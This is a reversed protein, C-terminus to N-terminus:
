RKVMATQLIGAVCASAYSSWRRRHIRYCEARSEVSCGRHTSFRAPMVLPETTTDIFEVIIQRDHSEVLLQHTALLVVRSILDSLSVNQSTSYALNHSM